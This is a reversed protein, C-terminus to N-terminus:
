ASATPRGAGRRTLKALARRALRLPRKLSWRREGRLRADLERLEASARDIIAARAACEALLAAKQERLGAAEEVLAGWGLATRLADRGAEGFAAASETLKRALTAADDPPSYSAPRDTLHLFRECLRAAAAVDAVGFAAADLHLAAGDFGLETPRLVSPPPPAYPTSALEADFWAVLAPDDGLSRRVAGLAKPWDAETVRLGTLCARSLARRDLAVPAGPFLLRRATLFADAAYAPLAHLDPITPDTRFGAKANLANFEREVNTRGPAHLTAVGNSAGSVGRVGMPLTTALFRGGCATAFGSYVDPIAHAFVAGARARIEDLVDRRVASNYVMPLEEYSERGDAVARVLEAGDRWALARGLPVRLYDGHGAIIVSPWTYFATDWRVARPAHERILGDLHTLAHPLLGDDDGLVTVYEGRAHSLAFEWNASMAVPEATRVYRVKPSALEDVVAKTAPSSHNDSVIVEYDDFAQDLCTQLTYRLTAARERTPVVVSFRVAPM